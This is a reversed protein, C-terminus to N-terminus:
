DRTISARMVGTSDGSRQGCSSSEVGPPDLRAQDQSTLMGLVAGFADVPPEREQGIGTDDRGDIQGTPPRGLGAVSGEPEFQLPLDVALM